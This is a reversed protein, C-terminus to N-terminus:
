HFMQMVPWPLFVMDRAATLFGVKPQAQMPLMGRSAPYIKCLLSADDGKVSMVHHQFSMTLKDESCCLSLTLHQRSEM